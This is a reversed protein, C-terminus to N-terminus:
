VAAAQPTPSSYVSNLIERCESISYKSVVTALVADGYGKRLLNMDNVWESCGANSMVRHLGLLKSFADLDKGCAKGILGLYDVNAMDRALVAPKPLEGEPLQNYRELLQNFYASGNQPALAVLQTRGDLERPVSSEEIPKPVVTKAPAISVPVLTEQAVEPTAEVPKMVPPQPQVAESPQSVAAAEIAPAPVENSNSGVLGQPRIDEAVNSFIAEDSFDDSETDDGQRRVKNMLSSFLGGFRGKPKSPLEEDEKTEDIDSLVGAVYAALSDDGSENAVADVPTEIEKEPLNVKPAEVVVETLDSASARASTVTMSLPDIDDSVKETYDECKHDHAEDYSKFFTEERNHESVDEILDDTLESKGINVAQTDATPTNIIPRNIIPTAPPPVIQSISDMVPPLVVEVVPEIKQEPRELPPLVSEIKLKPEQELESVDAKATLELFEKPIYSAKTKEVEWNPLKNSREIKERVPAKMPVPQTAGNLLEAYADAAVDVPESNMMAPGEWPFDESAVLEKWSGGESDANVLSLEFTEDALRSDLATAAGYFRIAQYVMGAKMLLKAMALNEEPQSINNDILTSFLRMARTPQGKAVIRAAFIVEEGAPPIEPASWIMKSAERYFGADYMVQVVRKRTTWDEPNQEVLKILLEQAGDMGNISNTM